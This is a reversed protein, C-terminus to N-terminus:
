CSSTLAFGSIKLMNLPGLSDLIGSIANRHMFETRPLKLKVCGLTILSSPAEISFLRIHELYAQPLCKTLNTISTPPGMTPPAVWPCTARPKILFCASCAMLNLLGTLLVGGHM